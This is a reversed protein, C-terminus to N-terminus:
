AAGAPSSPAPDSGDVDFCDAFTFYLSAYFVTSFILSAPMAAMAMLHGQGLLAFMLNAAVAFVLIVATWTLAYVVFAGRNRWCAMLSFFLSKAAPQAGWHVLAPAHWFPV